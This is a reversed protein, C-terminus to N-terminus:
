YTQLSGVRDTFGWVEVELADMTLSRSGSSAGLGRAVVPTPPGGSGGGDAPAPVTVLDVLGLSHLVAASTAVSPAHVVLV